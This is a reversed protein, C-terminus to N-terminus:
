NNENKFRPCLELNDYFLCGECGKFLCCGSCDHQSNVIKPCNFIKCSRGVFYPCSFM